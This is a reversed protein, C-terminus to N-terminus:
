PNELKKLQKLKDEILDPFYADDGDTECLVFYAKKIAMLEEVQAKYWAITKPQEKDKNPSTKKPFLDKYQKIAKEEFQHPNEGDKNTCAFYMDKLTKELTDFRKSFSKPYYFCDKHHRLEKEGYTKCKKHCKIDAIAPFWKGCKECLDNDSDFMIVKNSGCKPCLKAM